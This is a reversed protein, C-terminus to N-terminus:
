AQRDSEDATTDALVKDVTELTVNGDTVGRMIVFPQMLPNRFRYRFQREAGVKQLVPGREDSAFKNLHSAFAPVDLDHGMLMLPRKISYPRFYGLDDTRSLACALLVPVFLADSRQSATAKLYADTLSQTASDVAEKMGQRVDDMTVSLSLRGLAQRTAFLGLRHVYHPLGQSLRVVRKVAGTAWQMGLRKAGTEIIAALEDAEMRPMRIQVLAREISAHSAILQDINDGVGVLVIKAPVTHDSLAKITEAFAQAVKGSNLQDFEDFVFVFPTDSKRLLTIVDDPAPTEPLKAALTMVETIRQGAFGIAKKENQFRINAFTRVWLKAYTDESQCNERFAMGKGGIIIKQAVSVLSTKGVGREGYVVAHQGPTNIADFLASLQRIRGALLQRETIPASPVFVQGAKISLREWEEQDTPADAAPDDTSMKLCDYTM